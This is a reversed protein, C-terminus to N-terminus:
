FDTKKYQKIGHVRFSCQGAPYDTREFGKPTWYVIFHVKWVYKMPARQQEGGCDAACWDEDGGPIVFVLLGTPM